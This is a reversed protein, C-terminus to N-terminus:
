AAARVLLQDIRCPKHIAYGQAYDVGIERLKALIAPSEVYEAVTHMGLSHAIDNMSKVIAFDAPSDVIDKVFSGDIKLVDARLNKLHAYSTHGSGFDDLAFRCGFRRMQRIFDAAAGYSQIAVTETIEFSIRQAPIDGAQLYDRLTDIVETHALSMASLNISFGGLTAFAARNNRIWDFVRHLVWLDLEHARRLGEVAMVFPLPGVTRGPTLEIGLLVEHYPQLRSDAVIPMVMQGRLYLGSGGLLSDIRGAWDVLDQQTRLQRNDSEYCQLRNRGQAKAAVCAMDAQQVAADPRHLGPTFEAVGMNVGISFGHGGTQFRYDSLKVLLGDLRALSNARGCDPLFLALTDDRLSSVLGHQGLIASVEGALARALVDAQAAGCAQSVVRFQDFEVIALLHTRDSGRCPTAHALHQLFGKRSLLGTVADRLSRQLLQERGQDLMAQVSREVLPMGQDAGQKVTGQRLRQQFDQLTLELHRTASRNTLACDQATTSCWILQMPLWAGDKLVHWWDGVRWQTPSQTPSHTPSYTPSQIPWLTPEQSQQVNTAPTDAADAPGSQALAPAAYRVTKLAVQGLVVDDLARQLDAILADRQESESNVGSLLTEIQASIALGARQREVILATPDPSLLAVLQDLLELARPWQEIDEGVRFELQVLAQRWGGELLSWVIQPVERGGLRADLAMDVRQRAQRFRHRSECAEQLRSVRAQRTQRLPGLLRVLSDRTRPYVAPDQDALHCVREIARHLYRQLSAEFFRGDDDVAIAFQELLDVVQRAPHAAQDPFGGERVALKLLPQELRKLLGDIAVGGGSVLQAQGLLNAASDLAYQSQSPISLGGAANSLRTSLPTQDAGRLGVWGAQPMADILRVLDELAVASGDVAHRADSTPAHFGAVSQAPDVHRLLGHAMALLSRRMPEAARAAGNAPGIASNASNANNAAPRDMAALPGIPSNPSNPRNAQMAPPISAQAAADSAATSEDPQVSSSPVTGEDSVPQATAEGWASLAQATQEVLAPLRRQLAQGFAQYLVARTNNCLLPDRVAQQLYRCIMAPGFPNLQRDLQQGTLRGYRREVLVLTPGYADESELRNVVAMLNLWDEFESEELLSLEEASPGAPASATKPRQPQLHERASVFFAAEFRARGFKLTAPAERLRKREMADTSRDHAQEFPGDLSAFLEGFVRRLASEFLAMCQAQLM